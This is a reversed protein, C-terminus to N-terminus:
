TKRMLLLVWHDKAVPIFLLVLCLGTIAFLHWYTRGKLTYLAKGKINKKLMVVCNDCM